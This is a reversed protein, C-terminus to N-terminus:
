AFRESRHPHPLARAWASSRARIRARPRPPFRKTSRPSARSRSMLILAAANCGDADAARLVIADAGTSALQARYRPNALFSLEGSTANALTAVGRIPTAPDGRLEIGFRAAIDGLTHTTM